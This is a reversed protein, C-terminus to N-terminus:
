GKTQVSIRRPKASAAKPLHLILVGDRSEASIRSADITEAVQFSRHFDGVEYEQLLFRTGEAQREPTRAHITLEGDEFRVDFQSPDAGPTDAYVTVEDESELVDVNPRFVPAARTFERQVPSKADKKEIPNPTTM